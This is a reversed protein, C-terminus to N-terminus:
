VNRLTTIRSIIKRNAKNIMSTDLSALYIQTTKDSDHGLGESIVSLPIEMNRAISAWSHRAVYTSLPISLGIMKGIQKLNRNIRQLTREYCTRDAQNEENIIPFIYSSSRVQEAYKDVIDQMPREWQISLSQFTKRRNYTLIGNRLDSKRLYAIDVFSMGRTYFSFMFINRAFDLSPKDSLDLCLIMRIVDASVARKRTKGVTVHVKQFIDKDEALGEDVAQRYLTRLTRIYCSASSRKLGKHLMWSEYEQILESSMDCFGLDKEGRFKGFCRLTNTYTKATGYCKMRVKKTTQSRIHCFVSTCPPIKKFEERLDAATYSCKTKEKDDAIKKMKSMEWEIKSRYLQLVARRECCSEASETIRICAHREDWENPYIHYTTSISCVKRLHIVQYYLTGERDPVSSPRFRLKITTM